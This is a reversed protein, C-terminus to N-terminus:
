KEKPKLSPALSYIANLYDQMRSLKEDTKRDNEAIRQELAAIKANQASVQNSTMFAFCAGGTLMATCCVACVLIAILSGVGGFHNTNSSSSNTVPQMQLRAMAAVSSRIEGIASRLHGIDEALEEPLPQNDTERRSM